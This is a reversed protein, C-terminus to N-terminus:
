LALDTEPPLSFTLKQGLKRIWADLWEHQASYMRIQYFYGGRSFWLERTDGLSSDRSSFRVAPIEGPMFFEVPDEIPLSPNDRSITEATLSPASDDVPFAVIQFGLHLRPHEALIVEEGNEDFSSVLFDAPVEFSLGLTEHTYTLYDGLELQLIYEKIADSETKQSQQAPPLLLAAGALTAAFLGTSIILFAPKQINPM